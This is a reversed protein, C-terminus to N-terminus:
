IFLGGALHLLNKVKRNEIIKENSEKITEFSLRHEEYIQNPCDALAYHDM